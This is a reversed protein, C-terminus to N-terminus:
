IQQMIVLALGKFMEISPSQINRHHITVSGDKSLYGFTNDQYVM